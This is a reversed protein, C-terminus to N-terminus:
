YCRRQWAQSDGGRKGAEMRSPSKLQSSGGEDADHDERHGVKLPATHRGFDAQRTGTSTESVSFIHSAPSSACHSKHTRKCSSATRLVVGNNPTFSEYRLMGEKELATNAQKAEGDTLAELTLGAVPNLYRAAKWM